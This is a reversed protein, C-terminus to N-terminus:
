DKFVPYGTLKGSKFIRTLTVAATKQLPREGSERKYGPIRKFLFGIERM